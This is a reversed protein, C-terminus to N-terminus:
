PALVIDLSTEVDLIVVQQQLMPAKPTLGPTGKVGPADGDAFEAPNSAGAGAGPM